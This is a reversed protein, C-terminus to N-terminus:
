GLPPPRVGSSFVSSGKFRVNLGVVPTSLAKNTRHAASIAQISVARSMTGLEFKITDSCKM